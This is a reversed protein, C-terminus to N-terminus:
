ESGRCSKTIQQSNASNKPNHFCDSFILTIYYIAWGVLIKLWIQSSAKKFNGIAAETKNQRQLSLFSVEKTLHRFHKPSLKLYSKVFLLYFGIRLFPTIRDVKIAQRLWSLSNQFDKNQSSLRALYLYFSSSSIQYFFSPVEPYKLRVSRLMLAHSKAMTHYSSSMSSTVKRYGVLFESVVRYEYREAFRLYLDWDECGQAQQALFNRSYSGTTEFCTRRILSASSNGLFNHCILALYVNGEVLSAHFGGTPQDDEDIDVSWSYVVGVSASSRLFCQVQKEINTPYWIDDADIPAIFEGQSKKIALNRAAAVGSNFQQILQLRSDTQTLEQVIEATRDTSGDDVVIIELNKYTQQLVSEITRAIFAEANYAPIIVSVLPLEADCQLDPM